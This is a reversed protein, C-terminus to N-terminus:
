NYVPLPDNKWVTPVDAEAANNTKLTYYGEGPVRQSTYDTVANMHGHSMM